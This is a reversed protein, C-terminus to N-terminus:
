RFLHKRQFSSASVIPAGLADRIIEIARLSAGIDRIAVDLSTSVAKKASWYETFSNQSSPSKSCYEIESPTFNCEVFTKNEIKIANIEEVDVAVNSITGASQALAEAQELVDKRIQNKESALELFNSLYTFQATNKDESARADPNLLVSSLQYETYPARDKTVFLTNNIM